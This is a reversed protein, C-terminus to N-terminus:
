VDHPCKMGQRRFNHARRQDHRQNPYRITADLLALCRGTNEGAWKGGEPNQGEDPESGRKRSTGIGIRERDGGAGNELEIGTM